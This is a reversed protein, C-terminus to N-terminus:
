NSAEEIHKSFYLAGLLVFNAFLTLLKTIINVIRAISLEFHDLVDLNCCVNESLCRLLGGFHTFPFPFIGYLLLTIDKIFNNGAGLLMMAALLFLELV